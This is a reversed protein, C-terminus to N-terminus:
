QHKRTTVVVHRYPEEGESYTEVDPNDQLAAHIIRREYPNMPELAVAKRTHKVKYAINRSLNELADKRRKRYDETDLKVRVYDNQDKNIVLSTLYQLSDLTQGRKGILIGMEDGTFLVNMSGETQDYDIEMTVQMKMSGFVNTLFEEAAKKMAAVQEETKPTVKREPKPVSPEHPKEFEIVTGESERDERGHRRSDRDNRDSRDNRRDRRRGSDKKGYGSGYGNNSYGGRSRDGRGDRSRDGRDGERRPKETKEPYTIGLEKDRLAAAAARAEIDEATVLQGNTDKVFTEAKSPATNEKISEPMEAAKERFRIKADRSGIGLFGSSGENMVEYDLKDSTIGLELCAKTIAEDVTKATIEKFEM